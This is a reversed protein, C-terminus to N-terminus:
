FPSAPAASPLREGGMCVGKITEAGRIMDANTTREAGYVQTAFERGGKVGATTCVVQRYAPAVASRKGKVYSDWSSGGGAVRALDTSSITQM